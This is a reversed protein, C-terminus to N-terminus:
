MQPVRWQFNPRERAAFARRGEALDTGTRFSSWSHEWDKDYEAAANAGQLMAVYADALRNQTSISFQSRSVITQLIEETEDRFSEQKFLRTVLGWAEAREPEVEAATSLLFKARDLGVRDVLRELGSRPYVIGLKSPTIAIRASSAALVVDAAAAIQWGGGMCIGQVLSITMKRSRQIALDAESLRDIYEGADDRDFLVSEFQDLGAGASFDEGAGAISIVVVSPDNDLEIVSDRLDVCMQRSFANRHSPRNLLVRAIGDEVEVDIRGDTGTM